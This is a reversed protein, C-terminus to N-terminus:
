YHGRSNFRRWREFMEDEIDEVANTVPPMVEQRSAQRVFLGALGAIKTLEDFFPAALKDFEPSREFARWELAKRRAELSDRPLGHIEEYFKARAEGKTRVDGLWQRAAEANRHTQRTNSAGGGIVKLKKKQGERKAAEAVPKSKPTTAARLRTMNKGLNHGVYRNLGWSAGVLAGLGAGLGGLQTASSIRDDNTPDEGEPADIPGAAYGLGGGVLGGIGGGIFVGKGVHGLMSAKKVREPLPKDKPTHDEWKKLTEKSIEGRDAMAYFKRRQAKSKFPM